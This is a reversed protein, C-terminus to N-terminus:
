FRDRYKPKRGEKLKVIPSFDLHSKIGKLLRKGTRETDLWSRSQCFSLVRHWAGKGM